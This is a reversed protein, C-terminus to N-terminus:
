KLYKKIIEIQKNQMEQKAAYAANAAANAASNAANAADAAYAANAANAAAYAAVYAAYAANAAYAAANAANAANAAALKKAESLLRGSSLSKLVQKFLNSDPYRKLYIPEVLKVIDHLIMRKTKLEKKTTARWAWFFHNMGNSELIHLLNISKTEKFGEPLSNILTELGDECARAEKLRKLTTELKIKSM